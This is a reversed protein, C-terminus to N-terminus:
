DEQASLILERLHDPDVYKDETLPSEGLSIGLVEKDLLASSWNIRQRSGILIVVDYSRIKAVLGMVQNFLELGSKEKVFRWREENTMILSFDVGLDGLLSLVEDKNQLPFGVVAISEGRRVAGLGELRSLFSRDVGYRDAVEQQSIGESRLSMMQTLSRFLKEMSVLKDGIRYFDNM